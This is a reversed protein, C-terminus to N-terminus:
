VSKLIALIRIYESTRHDLGIVGGNIIKTVARIDSLNCKGILNNQQWFFCAFELSGAPTLLYECVNDLSMHKYTAFAQHNNKGTCQIISKGRYKWGDGSLENGNGMRSAYVKNAIKQPNRDYGVTDQLTKFYKPFTTQLGSASYNLNESLTKFQNSEHSCQAMFMAICENSVIGTSILYTNLPIFWIAYDKNINLIRRLTSDTLM